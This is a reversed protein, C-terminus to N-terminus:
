ADPEETCALPKEMLAHSYIREFGQRESERMHVEEVKAWPLTAGFGAGCARACGWFVRFRGSGVRTWGDLRWDHGLKDCATM